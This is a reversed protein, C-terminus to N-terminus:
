IFGFGDCEYKNEKIELTRKLHWLVHEYIGHYNCSSECRLLQAILAQCGLVRVVIIELKNDGAFLSINKGATFKHNIFSL